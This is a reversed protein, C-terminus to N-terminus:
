VTEDDEAPTRSAGPAATAGRRGFPEPCPGAALAGPGYPNSARSDIYMKRGAPGPMVPFAAALHQLQLCRLPM